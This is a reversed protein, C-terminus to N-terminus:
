GILSLSYTYLISDLTKSKEKYDRALLKEKTQSPVHVFIRQIGSEEETKPPPPSVLEKDCHSDIAKAIFLDLTDKGKVKFVLSHVSMKLLTQIPEYGNEKKNERYYRQRKRGQERTKKLKRTNADM